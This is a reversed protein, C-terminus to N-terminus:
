YVASRLGADDIKRTRHKRIYDETQALSAHGMQAKLWAMDVVDNESVYLSGGTHKLAYMRKDIGLEEVVLKRWQDAALRPLSKARRPSPAFDVGFLFWDAPVDALYGYEHLADLLPRVLQKKENRKSKTETGEVALTATREDAQKRQLYGIHAPRMYLYFIVLTFVYFRPHRQRLHEAITRLEKPTLIEFRDSEEEHLAKLGKLPNAPLIELPTVMKEFAGVVYKINANITRPGDGKRLRYELYQQLHPLRFADVPEDAYGQATAWKLFARYYTEFVKWSSSRIGIQRVGHAKTMAAKLTPRAAKEEVQSEATFYNYGQQLAANLQAIILHALARREEADPVRNLNFTKRLRTLAKTTPHLNYWSIMWTGDAPASLKALEYTVGRMPFAINKALNKLFAATPANLLLATTDAGEKKM